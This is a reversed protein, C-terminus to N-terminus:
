NTYMAPEWLKFPVFTKQPIVKCVLSVSGAAWFHEPFFTNKSSESFEQVLAKGTIKEFNELFIKEQLVRGTAAEPFLGNKLYLQGALQPAFFYLQSGFFLGDTLGASIICIKVKM